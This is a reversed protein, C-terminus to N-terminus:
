EDVQFAVNQNLGWQLRIDPQLSIFLEKYIRFLTVHSYAVEKLRYEFDIDAVNSENRKM